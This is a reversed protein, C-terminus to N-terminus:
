EVEAQELKSLTKLIEDKITDLNEDDEDLKDDEPLKASQIKKEIPQPILKPTEVEVDPKVFSTSGNTSQTVEITEELKEPKKIQFDFDRPEYNENGFNFSSIKDPLETLTTIEVKQHKNPILQNTTHFNKLTEQIQLKREVKINEKIKKDSGQKDNQIQTNGLSIKSSIEHMRNDLQSLKQDMLTILGEGLPGLDPHKSAAELKEIKALVIGHQHQYRVLLRDRQINTLESERQYLRSITKTLIEKEIKLTNIQNKIHPNTSITQFENKNKPFKRIAAATCVGVISSLFLVIEQM